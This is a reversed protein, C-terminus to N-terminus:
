KIFEDKSKPKQYLKLRHGNVLFSVKEDDNKKVRVTGNDYIAEVEYPGLWHM